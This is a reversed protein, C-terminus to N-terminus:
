RDIAEIAIQIQIGTSGTDNSGPKGDVIDRLLTVAATDQKEIARQIQGNIVEDLQNWNDSLEAKLQKIASRRFLAVKPRGSPNGSQGPRFRTAENTRTQVPIATAAISRNTPIEALELSVALVSVM